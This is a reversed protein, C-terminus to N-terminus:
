RSVPPVVMATANALNAHVIHPTIVILLENDQTNKTEHSLATGLGPIKAIGPLGQLTAAESRTIMGAVIGAEGSPIRITGTYQRNGIVPVGNFAQGSLNKIAMDLALTVESDGHIQPTAKLTLGLDEFSFSPFPAQFSQNQIVQSIAATNYIPAFIANTVPYRSGIRLTAANGQSARLTAHQLTQVRSENLSLHLTAPPFPVAFRTFGGGFTGFPNQLLSNQQNNQLQALLAAIATSGAQNIGGSAILQNILDQINQQGLAALAASSLNIMSWQLPMQLGFDRLMSANVEFVEVDLMVQPRANELTQVFQAMTDLTRQPARVVISYQTPQQVAFRVNFITRFANLVDTLEQISTADQVYFTRAVMRDLEQHQAPTDAAVLIESPSLPVWFTKSMLTAATMAESFTADGLDVNLPRVQTSDDFSVQIGYVGAIASIVSKTDGRLHIDHRGRKPALRIEPAATDQITAHLLGGPKPPDLADQLRQRAFVNQPDIQTAARFEAAAAVTQHHDMLKNGSQVHQLVLQQRAVERATVYELNEPVTGAAREFAQFAEELKNQKRFRLGREFDQRAQKFQAPSVQCAKATHQRDCDSLAPAKVNAAVAAAGFALFVGLTCAIRM